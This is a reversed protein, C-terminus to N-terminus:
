LMRISETSLRRFVAQGVIILLVAWAASFALADWLPPLGDAIPRRIGEMVGVFPNLAMYLGRWSEPVQEIGYMGPSLFWTVRLVVNWANVVDPMIVAIPCMLLGMGVTLGAMVLLPLPLWLLSASVPKAYVVMFLALVPLGALGQVTVAAQEALLVIVRPVPLSTLIVKNSVFSTAGKTTALSFWRWPILACALFLPYADISSNRALGLMGGFVLAYVTVMALPDILWWGWGLLHESTQRRMSAVALRVLLAGPPLRHIARTM